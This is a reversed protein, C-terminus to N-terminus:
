REVSMKDLRGLAGDMTGDEVETARRGDGEGPGPESKEYEALKDQAEKLQKAQLKNRYVLRDFAAAKNAVAAQLSALQMPSLPKDGEKLPQGKSFARNLMHRGHELFENGKPDAPDEKFFKPYKEIVAVREREYHENIATEAKSLNDAKLKDREEGKTRYDQVAAARRSLLRKVEERHNLAIQSGNGFMQDAFDAADADNSIEMLQDFDDATASRKAQTVEGTDENKREVVRLKAVTSQGTRWAEVFPKHYQEKYEESKEFNSYKLEDAVEAYRKEQDALRKEYQAVTEGLRRKEPDDAGKTRLQTLEKEMAELKAKYEDRSTRLTAYNEDGDRGGKKPPTVPDASPEDTKAPKAFKGDPKRAREAPKPEPGTGDDKAMEDLRSFAEHGASDAAPEPPPESTPAAPQAPTPTPTASPARVPAPAASPAPSIAAPAEPM